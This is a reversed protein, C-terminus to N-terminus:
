LKGSYRFVESVLKLFWRKDKKWKVSLNYLFSFCHAETVWCPLSLDWMPILIKQIITPHQLEGWYSHWEEIFKHMLLWCITYKLYRNSNDKEKSHGLVLLFMGYEATTGTFNLLTTITIDSLAIGFYRGEWKGFVQTVKFLHKFHKKDRNGWKRFLSSLEEKEPTNQPNDSIILLFWKLTHCWMYAEKTAWHYFFIWRGICSICTEDRPWSSGRYFSIAVWELIRAQSIGHIPSGPPSCDMSDWLAPGAKAVLCCCIILCLCLGTINAPM